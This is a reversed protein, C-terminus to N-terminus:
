GAGSADRGRLGFGEEGAWRAWTNMADGCFHMKRKPERRALLDREREERLTLHVGGTLGKKEGADASGPWVVVEM